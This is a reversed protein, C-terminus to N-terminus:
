HKDRLFEKFKELRPDGENSACSCNGEKIIKGCVQCIGQCDRTCLPRMPFTLNLQELIVEKIDIKRSYFFLRNIDDDDLQDKAIELEEPLYVLDFSSNVEFEFPSLCRCCIFSLRTTIRGIIFIEEGFRRVKLEAHLPDLFVTNEEVLDSSFFEFNKSIELGDNPLKDIDIIM